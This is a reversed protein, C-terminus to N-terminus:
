SDGRHLRLTPSKGAFRLAAPRLAGLSKPSLSLELELGPPKASMASGVVSRKSIRGQPM